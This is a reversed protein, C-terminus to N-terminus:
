PLPNWFQEREVSPSGPVTASQPNVQWPKGKGQRQRHVDEFGVFFSGKRAPEKKSRNRKAVVTGVVIVGIAVVAAVSTLVWMLPGHQSHGSHDQASPSAISPSASASPSSEQGGDMGGQATPVVQAVSKAENGEINSGGPAKNQHLQKSSPAPTTRHALGSASSSADSNMHPNAAIPSASTKSTKKHTVFDLPADGGPAANVGRLALSM